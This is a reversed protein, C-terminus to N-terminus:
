DKLYKRITVACGAIGVGLGFILDVTFLTQAVKTFPMMTILSMIGTTGLGGCLLQYVGISLIFAILAGCAGVVCGECLFPLRIFGNYAGMMKMVSIEEHRSLVTLNITNTMIVVSIILLLVTIGAGVMNVARSIAAFGRTVTEDVRIDAIGDINQIEESTEAIRDVDNVEVAFRNRFVAANLFTENGGNGYEEIYNNYAEEQSIFTIKKINDLQAIDRELGRSESESIHILSLESESYTDDVFALIANEVQFQKMNNSINLSIALMSSILLLCAATTIISALSMVKHQLMNNISQQLSYEFQSRPKM